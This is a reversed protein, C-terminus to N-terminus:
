SYQGSLLLTFHGEEGEGAVWSAHNTEHEQKGM